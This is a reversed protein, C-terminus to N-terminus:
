NFVRFDPSSADMLQSRCAVDVPVGRCGSLWDLPFESPQDLLSRAAFSLAISRHETHPNVLRSMGCWHCYGWAKFFYGRWGAVEWICLRSIDHSSIHNLESCVSQSVCFLSILQNFKLNSIILYCSCFLTNSLLFIPFTNLRLPCSYFVHMIFLKSTKLTV